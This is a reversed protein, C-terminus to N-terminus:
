RKLTLKLTTAKAGSVAIVVRLRVTKGAKRLLKKGKASIRVGVKARPARACPRPRRARGDEERAPRSGQGQRGEARPGLRHVRPRLGDEHPAEDRRLRITARGSVPKAPVSPTTPTRRRPRRDVAHGARGPRRGPGLRPELRRRDRPARGHDAHRLRSGPRPRRRRPHRHARRRRRRSRWTGATPPSRRVRTTASPDRSGSASRRCRPSRRGDHPLRPDPRRGQATAAASRSGHRRLGDDDPRAVDRRRPLHVSAPRRLVMRMPTRTGLRRTADHGAPERLEVTPDSAMTRTDAIWSPRTWGASAASDPRTGHRDAPRRALLRHRERARQRSAATGATAPRTTPWTSGTTRDYAVKTGDPSIRPTSRGPSRALREPGTAARAPTAFDALVRGDRALRQLRRGKLAILTGDDAQSQFSYGGTKTVPVQRAGDPTSCGSTAARSTPSRTPTPRARRRGARRGRRGAHRHPNPNAHRCPGPRLAPHSVVSGSHSSVLPRPPAGDGRLGRRARLAAPCPARSRASRSSTTALRLPRARRAPRAAGRRRLALAEGDAFAIAPSAPPSPRRAAAREAVGDVWVARESGAPRTTSRRHRPEVGGRPRRRRPRGGGVLALRRPPRPLRRVRRPRRSRRGRRDRGRRPASPGCARGDQADM